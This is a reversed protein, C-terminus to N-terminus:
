KLEENLIDIHESIFKLIGPLHEMFLMKDNETWEYTIGTRLYVRSLAFFIKENYQYEFIFKFNVFREYGPAFENYQKIGSLNLFEILTQKDVQELDTYFEQCLNPYHDMLVRDLGIELLLHNFFWKRPWTAKTNLQKAIHTECVRFFESQHFIRDGEIHAKSGNGLAIHEKKDYTSLPRLHTKSINRVLDPLVLGLNYYIDDSKYFYYHSLFNM